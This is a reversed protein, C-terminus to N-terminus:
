CYHEYAYSSKRKKMKGRFMNLGIAIEQTKVRKGIENTSRRQDPIKMENNNHEFQKVRLKSFYKKPVTFNSTLGMFNFPKNKTLTSYTFLPSNLAM